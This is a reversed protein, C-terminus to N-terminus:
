KLELSNKRTVIIVALLANVVVIWIPYIIGTAHIHKIAALAFMAGISALVFCILTEESPKRWAHRITPLSAIFDIGVTAIIAILPSNFLIWLILGLIAGIQCFIDFLEFKRDGYSLSLAVIAACEVCACLTLIASPYQKAAFSAASAIGTLL